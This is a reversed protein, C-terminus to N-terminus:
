AQQAQNTVRESPVDLTIEPPRTDVTFPIAASQGRQGHLDAISTRLTHLGEPLGRTPTCTAGETHSECSM